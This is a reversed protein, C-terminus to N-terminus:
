LGIDKLDIHYRSRWTLLGLTNQAKRTLTGRKRMLGASIEFPSLLKKMVSKSLHRYGPYFGGGDFDTARLYRHMGSFMWPHTSVKSDLPYMVFAQSDPVSRLQTTHIKVLHKIFKASIPRIISLSSNGWLDIPVAQGKKDLLSWRLSLFPFKTFSENQLASIAYATNAFLTSPRESWFVLMDVPDALFELEFAAKAPELKPIVSFIDRYEPHNESIQRIFQVQEQARAILYKVIGEPSGGGLLDLDVLKADESPRVYLRLIMDLQQQQLIEDEPLVLSVPESPTPDRNTFIVQLARLDEPYHPRDSIVEGNIFRFSGWYIDYETLYQYDFKCDPFDKSLKAVANKIPRGPTHFLYRLTNPQDTVPAVVKILEVGIGWNDRRWQVVTPYGYKVFCSIAAQASTVKDPFRERYYALLQEESEFTPLPAGEEWGCRRLKEHLKNVLENTMNDPYYGGFMGQLLMKNHMRRDLLYILDVSIPLKVQDYEEPTPIIKDLSFLLRGDSVDTKLKDLSGQPGSITLRNKLILSVM